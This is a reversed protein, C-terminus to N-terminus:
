YSTPPIFKIKSKPKFKLISEANKDIIVTDDEIKVEWNEPHILVTTDPGILKGNTISLLQNTFNSDPKCFSEIGTYILIVDGNVIAYTTPIYDRLQEQSCIYSIRYGIQGIKKPLLLVQILFKSENKHVGQYEGLVKLFQEDNIVLSDPAKFYNKPNTNETGKNRHDSCSCLLILLTFASFRLFENKTHLLM